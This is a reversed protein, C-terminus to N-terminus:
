LTHPEIEGRNQKRDGQHKNDSCRNLEQASQRATFAAQQRELLSARDMAITEISIRRPSTLVVADM